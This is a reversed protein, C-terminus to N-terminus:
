EYHQYHPEGPLENAQLFQWAEPNLHSAVHHYNHRKGPLITLQVPHGAERFAAVTDWVACLSQIM